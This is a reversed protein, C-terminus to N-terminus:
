SFVRCFGWHPFCFTPSFLPKGTFQNVHEKLKANEQLVAKLTEPDRDKVEEVRVDLDAITKKNAQWTELLEIREDTNEKGARSVMLLAQVRALEKDQAAIDTELKEIASRRAQGASSPFCWYYNSTGIKECSIMRDDILTQLVEKVTQM